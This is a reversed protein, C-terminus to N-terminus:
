MPTARKGAGAPIIGAAEDAISKRLDKGRVRPSSGPLTAVREASGWKEGCGRPHDGDAMVCRCRGGSKGAGAPIIRFLRRRREHGLVKGRVRPSSGKLAMTSRHPTPKEGCGRPHDWALLVALFWLDSKGAGAPIIGIHGFRDTAYPVKGRVRPSSGALLRKPRRKRCKEGCGRPHDWVHAADGRGRYSKGAGAPIIGQGCQPAECGNVKGRM